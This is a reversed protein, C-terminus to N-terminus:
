LFYLRRITYLHFPSPWAAYYMRRRKWGGVEKYRAMLASERKALDLKGESTEYSDPMRYGQHETEFRDKQKAMELVKRKVERRQKEEETLEMDINIYIVVCVLTNTSKLIHLMICLLLGKTKYKGGFLFEEDRLEKEILTLEKEERKKLYERRSIKRADDM